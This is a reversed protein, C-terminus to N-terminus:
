TDPFLFEKKSTDRELVSSLHPERRAMQLTIHEAFQQSSFQYSSWTNTKSSRYGLYASCVEETSYSPPAMDLAAGTM